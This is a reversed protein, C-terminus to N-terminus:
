LLDIDATYLLIPIYAYINYLFSMIIYCWQSHHQWLKVFRVAAAAAAFSFRGLIINNNYM